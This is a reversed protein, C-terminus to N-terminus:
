GFCIQTLRVQPQNQPHGKARNLAMKQKHLVEQVRARRREEERQLEEKKQREKRRRDREKQGMFERVAQASCRQPGQPREPGQAEEQGPARGLSRGASVTPSPSRCSLVKSPILGRDLMRVPKNTSPSPSKKSMSNCPTGPTSIPSKLGLNRKSSIKSTANSPKPKRATQQLNKNSVEPAQSRGRVVPNCLKAMLIQKGAILIDHILKSKYWCTRRHLDVKMKQRVCLYLM